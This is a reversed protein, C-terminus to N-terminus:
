APREEQRPDIDVLRGPVNADLRFDVPRVQKRLADLRGSRRWLAQLAAKAYFTAGERARSKPAFGFSHRLIGNALNVMHNRRIAQTWYELTMSVNLCDHNEIRHPANLPWFLGQGPELDFVEAESDFAPDYALGVELQKLAINELGENTLFPPRPPYIYVRKRGQLQLLGQGPLDAHYYVQAGPSSVLIGMMHGFSSVPPTLADAESFIKTVLAGFQPVVQPADRLNLWLRGHEIAELVQQGSLAGFDGERWVRKGGPSREGMHVIAYHERPYREILAALGERGFRPDQHLRHQFLHPREQWRQPSDPTLSTLPTSANSDM